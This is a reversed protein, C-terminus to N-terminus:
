KGGLSQAQQLMRQLQAPRPDAAWTNPVGRMLTLLRDPTAEAAFPSAALWKGFAGATAALRLTPSAQDLARAAGDHPLTWELERYDSTGPVKFRVRVTGLPGEGAPDVQVTYLANGAEAAGLEAADVTNDRFQERTLQHRAYGIQRWARARRPNWEVQVKVDSAAVQLAGALQGAFDSAAAAPSNIFGYRGDGNRSLQEMLEDDYGEWRRWPM